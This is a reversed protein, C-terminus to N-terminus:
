LTFFADADSLPPAEPGLNKSADEVYAATDIGNSDLYGHVSADGLSAAGALLSQIGKASGSLVLARAADMAQGDPFEVRVTIPLGDETAYSITLSTYEYVEETIEGSDVVDIGANKLFAAFDDDAIPESSM